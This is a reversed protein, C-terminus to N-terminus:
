VEPVLSKVWRDLGEATVTGDEGGLRNGYTAGLLVGREDVLAFSPFALVGIQDFYSQADVLVPWELGYELVFRSARDATDFTIAVVGIAPNSRSFTNLAGVDRVCPACDSFFFTVVLPRGAFSGLSAPGRDLQELEFPSLPEGVVPLFGSPVRYQSLDEEALCASAVILLILALAARTM